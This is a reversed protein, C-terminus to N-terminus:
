AAFTVRTARAQDDSEESAANPATDCRYKLVYNGAALAINVADVLVGEMKSHDYIFSWLEAGAATELSLRLDGVDANVPQSDIFVKTCTVGASLTFALERYLLTVLPSFTFNTGTHGTDSQKCNVTVGPSLTVTDNLTGAVATIAQAQGHETAYHGAGAGSYLNTSDHAPVWIVDNELAAQGLRLVGSTLTQTSGTNGTAALDMRSFLNFSASIPLAAYTPM